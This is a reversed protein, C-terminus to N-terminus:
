GFTRIEGDLHRQYHVVVALARGKWAAVILGVDGENDKLLM